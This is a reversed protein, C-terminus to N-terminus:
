GKLIPLLHQLFFALSNARAPVRVSHDKVSHVNGNLFNARAKLRSDLVKYKRVSCFLLLRSCNDERDESRSKLKKSGTM